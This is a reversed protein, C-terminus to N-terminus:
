HTRVRSNIISILNQGRDHVDSIIKINRFWINNSFQWINVEDSKMIFFHINRNNHFSSAILYLYCTVSRSSAPSVYVMSSMNLNNKFTCNIFNVNIYQQLYYSRRYEFYRCKINNLIVYFMKISPNGIINSMVSNRITLNNSVAFGCMESYYYLATVNTLNIFMTNQIVVSVNSTNQFLLSSIAYYTSHSNSGYTAFHFNDFLLKIAQTIGTAIMLLIFCFAM